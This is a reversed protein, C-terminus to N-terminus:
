IIQHAKNMVIRVDALEDAVERYHTSILILRDTSKLSKIFSIVWKQGDEDLGSMPEDFMLVPPDMALVAGLAVRKKEGGSLHYPARKRLAELNLMKLYKEVRARVEEESLGLQFLGFAIEDEVTKCFLQVEPNQFVYGIKGHFAKAFDPRKMKKETIETGDLLYKGSTPFALGNLIRFLTSKGCGNPGQICYCKGQEFDYTIDCLAPIQHYHYNLHELRIMSM